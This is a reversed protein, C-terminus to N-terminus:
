VVPYSPENALGLMNYHAAIKMFGRDGWTSAWSNKLWYYERGEKTKGYGYLVVAHNLVLPNQDAGEAISLVGSRYFVFAFFDANIGVVVPQKAIAHKLATENNPPVDVFDHVHVVVRCVNCKDGDKAKYPYDQETCIGRAHKAWEFAGDM